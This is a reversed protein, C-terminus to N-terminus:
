ICTNVSFYGNEKINIIIEGNLDTRYLQVNHEQLRYLVEGSPHGFNNNKGVGILAIKPNVNELFEETSSTKSGHHAVKLVVANLVKKDYNKLIEKEAIEEIDGTFLMNFKGYVMKAVIANNNIANETIFDKSPWLIDFYLNKEINIKDGAGVLIIDINKNCVIELFKEYNDTMEYQKSIIIKKVELNELLSLIGGVHDYDFHSIMVFDISSFGRDLIYPILTNEGVDFSSTLNGGGDILITSNNPTIIFTADGQGVDIFHVKLDSPILKLVYMFFISLIFLIIFFKRNIQRIRYKFLAVLNRLRIQTANKNKAYYNKFFMLVFFSIAFSLIVISLNPTPFYIKSYPLDGIKACFNLIKIGMNVFYAIFTSLSNNIFISILLIFCLITLPEIIVGVFINSILFYINLTNLSYIIIPIIIIQASITISIIEIIPKILKNIFFKNKQMNLMKEELFKLIDRQFLVIGITGGYSFQMGLDLILYPNYFLIILLSLGMSTWIDNKRYVIKSILMVIGMIASRIISVSFGTILIYFLIIFISLYYTKRKGFLNKFMMGTGLILYTMHTGSVALVHLLGANRFQEQIDEEIFDMNGVSLSIVIPYVEYSLLEKLKKEIKNSIKNSFLLLPNGHEKSKLILNEAKIIGLINKQKLYKNYDFGKYNRQTEPIEYTGEIYIKDGYDFSKNKNKNVDLYFYVKKGNIITSIKYTDKYDKDIRDQVIIAELVIKNLKAISQQMGVRYNEKAMIILNSIISIIVILFVVNKTFILKVYRFYRRFSLLKFKSKHNLFIKLFFYIAAIFIYLLAISFDFYLGWIIGIIYGIAVVLIPRKM